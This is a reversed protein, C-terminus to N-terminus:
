LATNQSPIATSQAIGSGVATGSQAVIVSPMLGFLLTTYRMEFTESFSLSAIYDKYAINFHIYFLV